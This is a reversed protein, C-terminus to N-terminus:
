LVLDDAYFQTLYDGNRGEESVRMEMRGLGMKVEKMVGDTYVNLFRSVRM